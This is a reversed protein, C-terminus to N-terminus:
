GVYNTMDEWMFIACSASPASTATAFQEENNVNVGCETDIVESVTVDETGSWDSFSSQDSDTLKEFLRQEIDGECLYMRSCAM